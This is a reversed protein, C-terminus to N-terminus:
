VSLMHANQNDDGHVFYLVHVSFTMGLHEQQRSITHQELVMYFKANAGDLSM